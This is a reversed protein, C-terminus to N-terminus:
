EGEEEPGERPGAGRGEEGIRRAWAPLRLNGPADSHPLFPKIDVVPSGDRADIGAVRLEGEDARVELLECLCLAVPNPRVPSRTGFVGMLPNRPDRCPHVRLVSRGDPHDNEHCWYLVWAHSFGEVGLLGDRYPEFIRLRAHPGSVAVEGIPNVHVARTGADEM